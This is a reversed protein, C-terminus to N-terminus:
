RVVLPLFVSIGPPPNDVYVQQGQITIASARYVPEEGRQGRLLLGIAFTDSLGPVDLDGRSILDLNPFDQALATPDFLIHYAGNVPTVQGHSLIFGPMAITYDVTVNSLGPPVPGTIEVPTVIDSFHLYGPQPSTVGLRLADDFVVYFYYRGGESGLVDGQPYPPITAGASCVGDHWVHVDVSWLGPETVPFNDAPDYFYGVSDAQGGRLYKTGSPATVTIAVQSALTPNVHGAFRFMDGPNLVAGPQVGTPQIFIHIDEGKLTMIPGGETTWGGNGEGAFPPMVRSGLPDADPLHVWSSAYGLYESHGSPLDHFVVGLYQLKYDNPQDGKVGVGLQDDYTTDLRWYAIPSDDGLYERVRVGPRQSSEYAYAAQDLVTPDVQPANGTTTSFFVPIEGRDVRTQLDNPAMGELRMHVARDLLLESWYGGTTDQLGPNLILSDGYLGDEMRSWIIDGAFYPAHLHSVVGAPLVVDRLGVFWTMDPFTGVDYGRRGHAILDAQAPPTMVVGGWTMVGMRLRGAEDWYRTTLDVRYEGPETFRIPPVIEPTFTGYANATGVVTRDLVVAAPQWGQYQRIRLSVEAGVRPYVQLTPNLVDGIAFPTGPMMGPDIDLPQAAWVEYTGGGTYVNGWVDELVGTMTIVYRGYQEFVFAFRESAARVAYVDDLQQTGQNDDHGSVTSPTQALSQAFPETGLDVVQGDPRRVVVHLEGGPLEFPIYPPGPQARDAYSIMPLFPELRYTIPEGTVEEVPPVIFVDGQTVIETVLGFTDRDGIAGIGRQGQVWTNTLLHWILRPRAVEGIAIPPLLAQDPASQFTEVESALWTTDTPVGSMGSEFAAFQIRPRYIGPLDDSIVFTCGLDGEIVHESVHRWSMGDVPVGWQLTPLAATEIPLGTPSLLTSVFRNKHALPQGDANHQMLVSLSGPTHIAGLDTSLTLAHSYLRLTSSLAYSGNGLPHVVGTLTWAAGVYDRTEAALDLHKQAAGATAFPLDGPAAPVDFPVFLITGPLVTVKGGPLGNSLGPWSEDPAASYGSPGHKILINSGPPAWIRATFSGDAGSVAYAQHMSNLNNLFVRALPMVAGPGGTVTVEGLEDPPGFTIKSADPPDVPPMPVYHTNLPINVTVDGSRLDVPVFTTYYGEPVRAIKLYTVDQPLVAEFRQSAAQWDMEYWTLGTLEAQLPWVRLLVTDTIPEGGTGVPVMSLLSGATVTFNQTFDSQAGDSATNIQSLRTVLPPRVEFEILGSLVTASYFGNADTIKTQPGVGSSIRISVNPVGGGPGFVTGSVVISASLDLAEAPPAPDADRPAAPQPTAEAARLAASLVLLGFLSLFVVMMKRM